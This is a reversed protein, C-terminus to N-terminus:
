GNDNKLLQRSGPRISMKYKDRNDLQLYGRYKCFQIRVDVAVLFTPVRQQCWRWEQMRFLWASVFKHKVYNTYACFLNFHIRHYQRM